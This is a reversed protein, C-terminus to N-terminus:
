ALKAEPFGIISVIAKYVEDAIAAHGKETYHCVDFYMDNQHEFLRMLNIYGTGQDAHKSFDAAGQIHAEGEYLSKEYIDMNCMTINMPQLFGIFQAGYFQAILNLIKINRNWFSFLSEDSYLGMCYRGSSTRKKVWDIIREENFQNVSDKYHLNNVGSMSIVIHPRLIYGDRLLRLIEDVIDDSPFAGNYITTRINKEKLQYYLKSVWNEPHFQESSTSGGLVVIRISDKEEKGYVKWGTKEYIRSAGTLPDYVQPWVNLLWEKSNNGQIKLSTYNHDELSFGALEVNERYSIYSTPNEEFDEANIIMLKDDVGEYAMKYINSIGQKKDEKDYVYGWVKIDYLNLVDKILGATVNKESYLFVKKNSKIAMDINQIFNVCDDGRIFVETDEYIRGQFGALTKLIEKKYQMKKVSIIVAYDSYDELERAEIVKRGHFCTVNEKQTQCYLEAKLGEEALFISMQEAGYGTGYIILKEGYLNSNLGVADSWYVVHDFRLTDVPVKDSLLILANKDYAIDHLAVVPRNMYSEGVYEEQETVFGCIDLHRFALEIFLSISDRNINWVYIEKDRYEKKLTYLACIM